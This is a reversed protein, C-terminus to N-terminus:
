ASARCRSIKKRVFNAMRSIFEKNTLKGKEPDIEVINNETGGM